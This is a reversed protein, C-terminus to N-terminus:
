ILAKELLGMDILGAHRTQVLLQDTTLFRKNLMVDFFVGIM